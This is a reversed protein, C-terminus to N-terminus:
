TALNTWELTMAQAFYSNLSQLALILRFFYDEFHNKANTFNIECTVVIEVIYKESTKFINYRHVIRDWILYRFQIQIDDM